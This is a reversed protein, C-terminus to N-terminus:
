PFKKKKDKKKKDRKGINLLVNVSQFTDELVSPNTGEPTCTDYIETSESEKGVSVYVEVEAEPSKSGLNIASVLDSVTRNPSKERESIQVKSNVIPTVKLNEDPNSFRQILNQVSSNKPLSIKDKNDVVDKENENTKTFDEKGNNIEVEKVEWYTNETDSIPVSVLESKSRTHSAESTKSERKSGRKIVNSKRTLKSPEEKTPSTEENSPPFEDPILDVYLPEENRAAEPKSNSSSNDECAYDYTNDQVLDTATICTRFLEFVLLVTDVRGEESILLEASLGSSHVYSLRGSSNLGVKITGQCQEKEFKHIFKWRYPQFTSKGVKFSEPDRTCLQDTDILSAGLVVYYKSPAKEGERIPEISFHASEHTYIMRHFCCVSAPNEVKLKVSTKGSDLFDINQGCIQHFKGEPSDIKAKLNGFKLNVFLWVKETKNVKGVVRMGSHEFDIKRSEDDLRQSIIVRCSRKHVRVDTVKKLENKAVAERLDGIKMPNRKTIGFDVHGSGDLEIELKDEIDITKQSFVYGGTYTQSWTATTNESTLTINEGHIDSFCAAM